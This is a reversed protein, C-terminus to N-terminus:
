AVWSGHALAFVGDAYEEPYEGLNWVNGADDQAWFSLEAEQVVGDGSDVDWVVVTPVGDIQKTLDTVTFVVQHPLPTGTRSARGELVWQTGPATPLFRNDIRTPHSFARREFRVAPECSPLAAGAAGAAGVNSVLLLVLAALIRAPVSRLLQQSSM